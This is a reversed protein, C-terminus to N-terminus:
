YCCSRRSTLVLEEFTCLNVCVCKSWYVWNIKTKLDFTNLQYIRPPILLLLLAAPATTMIGQEFLLTFDFNDRCGKVVPGFTDDMGLACPVSSTNM